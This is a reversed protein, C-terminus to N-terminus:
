LRTENSTELPGGNILKAAIALAVFISLFTVLFVFAPKQYWEKEDHCKHCINDSIRM